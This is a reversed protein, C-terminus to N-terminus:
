LHEALAGGGCRCCCPDKMLWMGVLRKAYQVVNDDSGLALLRIEMQNSESSIKTAATELCGEWPTLNVIGLHSTDLGKVLTQLLIRPFDEGGLHQASEQVDSFSRGWAAAAAAAAATTAAAPAAAAVAAAIVLTQSDREGATRFEARHYM